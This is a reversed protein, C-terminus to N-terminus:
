CDTGDCLSITAITKTDVFCSRSHTQQIIFLSLQGIKDFKPVYMYKINTAALMENVRNLLTAPPNKFAEDVRSAMAKDDLLKTSFPADLTPLPLLPVPDGLQTLNSLSFAPLAAASSPSEM